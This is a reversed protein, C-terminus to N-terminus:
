AVECNKIYDVLRDSPKAGEYYGDKLLKMLLEYDGFTENDLGFVIATSLIDREFESLKHKQKPNKITIGSKIYRNLNLYRACKEFAEINFTINDKEKTVKEKQELRNLNRNYKYDIWEQLQEDSINYKIKLQELCILVDAFEEVIHTKNPMGRLSKTIEHQLEGLEEIWVIEQTRGGKLFQSQDYLKLNM